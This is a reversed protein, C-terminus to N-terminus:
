GRKLRISKNSIDETFRKLRNIYTILAAIADISHEDLIEFNGIIAEKIMPVKGVSEKVSAKDKMNKVKLESKISLPPIQVLIADKMYMRIASEYACVSETLAKAADPMKANFFNNESVFRSPRYYEMLAYLERVIADIRIGRDGLGEYYSYRRRAKEGVVTNAIIADINFTDINMYGFAYGFTNTSPDGTMICLHNHYDDPNFDTLQM